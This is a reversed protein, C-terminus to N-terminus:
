STSTLSARQSAHETSASSASLFFHCKVGREPRFDVGLNGRQDPTRNIPQIHFRYFCGHASLRQAYRRTSDLFPDIGAPCVM